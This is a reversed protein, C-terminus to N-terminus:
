KKARVSREPRTEVSYNMVARGDPPCRATRAPLCRRFSRVAGRSAAARRLQICIQDGARPVSLKDVPVDSVPLKKDSVGFRSEARMFNKRRESSNSKHVLGSLSANTVLRRSRKSCSSLLQQSPRGNPWLLCPGFIPPLQQAGKKSPLQTWM